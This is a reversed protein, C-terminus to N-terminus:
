EETAANEDGHRNGDQEGESEAAVKDPNLFADSAVTNAQLRALEDVSLPDIRRNPLFRVKKLEEAMRASRFQLRGDKIRERLLFLNREFEVRRTPRNMPVVKM